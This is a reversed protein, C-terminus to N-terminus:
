IELLSLEEKIFFDKFSKPQKKPYRGKADIKLLHVINKSNIREFFISQSNPVGKSQSINLRFRDILYDSHTEILYNHKQEVSLFHILDGLAAQAKPHLHVEPQQITFWHNKPQTIMEVVLPLVQSVGYGVNSINIAYDSLKVLVEFPASPDSGFAHATVSKFLGSTEGFRNLIEIFYKGKDKSSFTKRLLHPTHDGEPTFNTRFGDYTRRPKSRIPAFWTLDGRIPVRMSLKFEGSKIKKSSSDLVASIISIPADKPLDNPIPLLGKHNKSEQSFIEKMFRIKKSENGTPQEVDISKYKTSKPQYVVKFLTNDFYQIYRYLRPMGEFDRFSMLVFSCNTEERENTPKTSLIGITFERKNQSGASVIDKYGGLDCCEAVEFTQHFWFRTNLILYVLSLFSSKGTSNEGVLFNASELPILTDSFGRYNDAYIYRM